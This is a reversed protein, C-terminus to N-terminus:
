NVMRVDGWFQFDSFCPNHQPNSRYDSLIAAVAKFETEIDDMRQTLDTHGVPLNHELDCSLWAFPALSM